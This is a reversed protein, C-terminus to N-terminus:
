SDGRRPLPWDVIDFDWGKAERIMKLVPNDVSIEYCMEEDGHENFLTEKLMVGFEYEIKWFSGSNCYIIECGHKLGKEMQWHCDLENGEEWVKCEGSSLGDKYSEEHCLDGSESLSFTVGTFLEGQYYLKDDMLSFEHDDMKIRLM